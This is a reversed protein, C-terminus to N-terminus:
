WRDEANPDSASYPRFRETTRSSRVRCGPAPGPRTPNPHTVRPAPALAVDPRALPTTRIRREPLDCRDVRESVPKFAPRVRSRPRGRAPHTGQTSSAARAACIPRPPRPRSSCRRRSRATRCGTRWSGRSAYSSSRLGDRGTLTARRPRRQHRPGDARATPPRHPHDRHQQDRASVRLHDRSPCARAPARHRATSLERSMDVAQAHRLQHPAFRRPVRRRVRNRTAPQPHRRALVTPWPDPRSPRLVIRRRPPPRPDPAVPRTARVGM